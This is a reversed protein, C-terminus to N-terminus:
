REFPIDFAAVRCDVAVPNTCDAYAMHLQIDEQDDGGNTSPNSLSRYSGWVICDDKPTTTRITTTTTTPVTTTVTECNLENNFCTCEEGNGALLLGAAKILTGDETM